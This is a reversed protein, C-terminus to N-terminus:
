RDYRYVSQKVEHIRTQTFDANFDVKDLTELFNGSESYFISGHDDKLFYEVSGYYTTLVPLGVARAELISLPLDISSNVM